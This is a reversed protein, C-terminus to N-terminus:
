LPQKNLQEGLSMLQNIVLDQFGRTEDDVGHKLHIYEEYLTGAVYKTGLDFVNASLYIISYDRDALGLIGDGLTDMVRVPYEKSFLKLSTLFNIAKDLQLQQVETLDLTDKTYLQESLKPKCKQSLYPPIKNDVVGKNRNVRAALEESPTGSKYQLEYEKFKDGCCVLANVYELNTIGMIYSPLEYHLVWEPHKITRDETLDTKAKINYTFKFPTKTSYVKVGKYFLSTSSGTYVDVDRTSVLLRKSTNLIYTDRAEWAENFEPCNSVVVFTKGEEPVISESTSYHTGGEDTANCLLERVAMWPEWEKGHETTFGLPSDNMCVLQFAKGRIVEEKYSFVYEDKGSFISINGGLRLVVAIAYSAGTGFKGIAADSKVSVGSTVIARIAVEGDNEFVINM